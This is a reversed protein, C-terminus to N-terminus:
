KNGSRACHFAGAAHLSVDCFMALFFLISEKSDSGTDRGAFRDLMVVIKKAAGDLERRAKTRMRLRLLNQNGVNDRFQALSFHKCKFVESFQREFTELMGDARVRHVPGPGGGSLCFLTAATSKSEGSLEGKPSRDM